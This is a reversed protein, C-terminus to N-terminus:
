TRPNARPSAWPELLVVQPSLKEGKMMRALMAAAEYGARRANPIVSSLPPDCLDCLMEDNHIGIVAVEDPVQVGLRRCAELVQQGRIDYCALIGVPKPLQKM